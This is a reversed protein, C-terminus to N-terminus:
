DEALLSLGLQARRRLWPSPRYRPDGSLTHLRDLATLIRGPGLQDGWSLPGMPYGLGIRVADDIDGPSAIRQQAIDAALNVITALVRQAVFGMSDRILTAGVTDRRFLALATAAWDPHTAPTAM